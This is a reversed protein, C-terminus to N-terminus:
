ELRDLAYPNAVTGVCDDFTRISAPNVNKRLLSKCFERAPKRGLLRANVESDTQHM